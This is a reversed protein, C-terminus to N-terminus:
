GELPIWIGSICGDVASVLTALFMGSDRFDSVPWVVHCSHVAICSFCFCVVVDSSTSGTMFEWCQSPFCVTSSVVSSVLVTYDCSNCVNGVEISLILM